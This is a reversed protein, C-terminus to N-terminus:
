LISFLGELSLVKAVHSQNTAYLAQMFIEYQKQTKRRLISLLKENRKNPLTLVEIEMKEDDKLVGDNFLFDLLGSVTDLQSLLYTYNTQIKHLSESPLM